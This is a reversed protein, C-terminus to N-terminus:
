RQDFIAAVFFGVLLVLWVAVGALLVAALLETPPLSLLRDWSFQLIIDKM